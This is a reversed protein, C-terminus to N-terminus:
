RELCNTNPQHGLNSPAYRPCKQTECNKWSLVHQFTTISTPGSFKGGAINEMDDDTLKMLTERVLTIKKKKPM